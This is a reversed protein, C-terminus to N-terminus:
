KLRCKENYKKFVYEDEILIIEVNKAECVYEKEDKKIIYTFDYVAKSSSLVEFNKQNYSLKLIEINKEKLYNTKFTDPLKNEDLYNTYIIGAIVIVILSFFGIIEKKSFTKKVKYIVYVILAIILLSFILIQM